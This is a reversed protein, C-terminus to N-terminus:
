REGPLMLVWVDRGNDSAQRGAMVRFPKDDSWPIEAYTWRQIPYLTESDDEAGDAGGRVCLEAGCLGHRRLEFEQMFHRMSAWRCILRVYVGANMGNHDFTEGNPAMTGHTVWTAIATLMWHMGDRKVLAATAPTLVVGPMFRSYVLEEGAYVGTMAEDVLAELTMEITM